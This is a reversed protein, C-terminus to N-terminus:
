EQTAISNKQNGHLKRKLYGQTILLSEINAEVQKEDERDLTWDVPTGDETAKPWDRFSLNDSYEIQETM